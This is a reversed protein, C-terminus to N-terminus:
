LESIFEDKWEDAYFEAADELECDEMDSQSVQPVKVIVGPTEYRNGIQNDWLVRYHGDPFLEVSYGSGGFGAQTSKVIADAFDPSNVFSQAATKISM